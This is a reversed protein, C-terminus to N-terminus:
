LERICGVGTTASPKLGAGAPPHDRTNGLAAAAYAFMISTVELRLEYLECRLKTLVECVIVTQKQSDM